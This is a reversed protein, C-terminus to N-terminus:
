CRNRSARVRSTTSNSSQSYNQKHKKKITWIAFNGKQGLHWVIISKWKGGIVTLSLEVECAIEGNDFKEKLHEIM